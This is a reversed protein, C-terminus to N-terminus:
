GGQKSEEAAQIAADLCSTIVDRWVVRALGQDASRWLTSTEPDPEWGMALALRTLQVAQIQAGGQLAPQAITRTMERGSGPDFLAVEVHGDKLYRSQTVEIM